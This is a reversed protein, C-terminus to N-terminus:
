KLDVVFKAGMNGLRAFFTGKAYGVSSMAYSSSGASIEIRSVERGLIDYITMQQAHDCTPFSFHITHDPLSTSAILTQHKIAVWNVVSTSYKSFQIECDYLMSDRLLNLFHEDRLRTYSDGRWTYSESGSYDYSFKDISKMAVDGQLNIFLLTDGLIDYSLDGFNILSKEHWTRHYAFEWYTTDIGRRITFNKIRKDVTDVVYSITDFSWITFRGRVIISDGNTVVAYPLRNVGGSILAWYKQGKGSDSYSGYMGSGNQKEHYSEFMSFAQFNISSPLWLSQALANVNEFVFAILLGFFSYQILKM